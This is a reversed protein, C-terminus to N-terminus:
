APASLHLRLARDLAEAPDRALLDHGILGALADSRGWHAQGLLELRMAWQTLSPRGTRRLLRAYAAGAPVPLRWRGPNLGQAADALAAVRAYSLPQAYGVHLARARPPRQPALLALRLVIRAYDDADIFSYRQRGDGLRLPARTWRLLGPAVYRDGAGIVFRPRLLFAPAGLRQAHEAVLREARLRSRALPTDPAPAADEDIGDQAGQGYVSMSSAYVAGRLNPGLRRLLAETADVNVADFGSGDRDIQKVALHVLVYPREPELDWPPARLDGARPDLWARAPVRAPDRLLARVRLGPPAHRDLARLLASGLFGSGGLLLLDPPPNM